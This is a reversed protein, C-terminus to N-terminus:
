GIIAEAANTVILGAPNAGADPVAAQPYFRYGLLNPDNPIPVSWQANGGSVPIGILDFNGVFLTCRGLGLPRLGFPLPVGGNSTRSDGLAGFAFIASTPLGQLVMTFTQNIAPVTGPAADLTPTGASGACGVGYPVFVGASRDAYEWTDRVPPYGGYIVITSRALDFTMAHNERATFSSPTQIPHWDYGDYEWTDSRTGSAGVGGAMVVRDRLAHYAIKNGWRASPVTPTLIQRWNTGDWEWTEATPVTGPTNAAGGFIVARDRNIDYAAEISFLPQPQNTPSLQTWDNGDWMWTDDLLGGGTTSSGGFMMVRQRAFDYWMAQSFRPPPQTAPQRLTWNTGDYEWTEGGGSNGGFLVCTARGLDYTMRAWWRPSPSTAPAAQTWATGNYEWTENFNQANDTGGFLVTTSRAIDFTMATHFPANPSPNTAVPQWDAQAGLTATVALAGLAPWSAPRAYTMAPHPSISTPVCRLAVSLNERVLDAPPAAPRM